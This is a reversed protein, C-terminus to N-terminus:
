LASATRWGDDDNHAIQPQQYRDHDGGEREAVQEAHARHSAPLAHGSSGAGSALRALQVPGEGLRAGFEGLQALGRDLVM